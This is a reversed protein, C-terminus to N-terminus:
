SVRKILSISQLVLSDKRIDDGKKYLFVFTSEQSNQGITSEFKQPKNKGKEITRTRETHLCIFYCNMDLLFPIKEPFNNNEDLCNLFKEAKEL